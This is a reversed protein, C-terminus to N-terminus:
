LVNDHESNFWLYHNSIILFGDFDKKKTGKNSRVQESSPYPRELLKLRSFTYYILGM